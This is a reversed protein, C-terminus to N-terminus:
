IKVSKEQITSTPQRHDIRFGFHLCDLVVNKDVDFQRDLLHRGGVWGVDVHDNRASRHKGIANARLKDLLADDLRKPSGGSVKFRSFSVTGAFFSM